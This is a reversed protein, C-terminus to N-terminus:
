GVIEFMDDFFSWNMLRREENRYLYYLWCGNEDPKYEFSYVDDKCWISDPVSSIEGKIFPHHKWDKKCRCIGSNIRGDYPYNENNM